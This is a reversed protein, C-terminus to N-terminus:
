ARRALPLGGRNEEACLAVPLRFPSAIVVLFGLSGMIGNAEGSARSAHSSSCWVVEAELPPYHVFKDVPPVQVIPTIKAAARMVMSLPASALNPSTIRRLLQNVLWKACARTPHAVWLM